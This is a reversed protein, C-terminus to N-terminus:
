KNGGEKGCQNDTCIDEYVSKSLSKYHDQMRRPDILRDEQLKFFRKKLRSGQMKMRTSPKRLQVFDTRRSRFIFQSVMRQFQIKRTTLLTRCIRVM